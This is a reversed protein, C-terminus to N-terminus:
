KIVTMKKIESFDGSNLKYYYVGSSLNSANFEVIYKGAPKYDNVLVAVQRGLLDYVKLSVLGPKLISYNIKTEPNFPNPYNQSLSYKDPVASSNGIGSVPTLLFCVNPRLQQLSGTTIESCGDGTPLDVYRGYTKGANLTSRVNSFYTWRNNNYCIEIIINDNGNWGFPTTFYISQWGTSQVKYTGYYVINWGEHFGSLSTDTTNLMGVCFGNMTLTDALNVYFSIGTISGPVGGGATLESALYLMDTRGDMWYTTFPYNSSLSDTGICVNTSQAQLSAFGAILFVNFLLIHIITKM